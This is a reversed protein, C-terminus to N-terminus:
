LGFEELTKSFWSRSHVRGILAERDFDRFGKMPKKGFALWRQNIDFTECIKIGMDFKLPVRGAEFNALKERSLSVKAALERQTLGLQERFHRLRGGVLKEEDPFNHKQSGKKGQAMRWKQFFAAGFVIFYQSKSM